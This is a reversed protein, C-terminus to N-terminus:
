NRVAISFRIDVKDAVTDTDSWEGQGITFALRSVPLTGEFLTFAGKRQASFPASVDRTIGKITLKGSVQYRNGGLAKFATALFRAKPFRAVNFWDGNSALAVAEPTPLSISATDIVIDAKGKSPQGPDFTAEGSFRKFQGSMPANMQTLSFGIQSHAADLPAAYASSALLLAASAFALKM